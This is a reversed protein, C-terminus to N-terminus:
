LSVDELRTMLVNKKKLLSPHLLNEEKGGRMDSKKLAIIDDWKQSIRERHSMILLWSEVGLWAM